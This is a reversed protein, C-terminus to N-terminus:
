ALLIGLIQTEVNPTQADNQEDDGTKKRSHNSGEATGDGEDTQCRRMDGAEDDARLIMATQQGDRHQHTCGNGEEAIKEAGKRRVTADDRQIGDGRQETSGDDDINQHLPSLSFTQTKSLKKAPSLQISLTHFLFLIYFSHKTLM